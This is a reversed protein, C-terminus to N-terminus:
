KKDSYAISISKQKLSLLSDLEMTPYDIAAPIAAHNRILESFDNATVFNNDTLFKSTAFKSETLLTASVDAKKISKTFTKTSTKGAASVFNIKKGVADLLTLTATGVTIIVNKGSKKASHTGSTIQITDGDNFGKVSDKGDSKGFKYTIDMGYWNELYDNGSGGSLTIHDGENYLTDNGAGGVIYAYVGENCFYDAGAGGLLTAHEGCSYIYDDGADGLVSSKDGYNYIEDDDDGGRLTNGNGFSVFIDEGEGGALSNYGVYDVIEDDGIGGDISVNWGRNTFTDDGGEGYLEAREASNDIFDDGDGVFIKSEYGTVSVNDGFLKIETKGNTVTDSDAGGYITANYGYNNIVNNGADGYILANTAHNTITDAGEGGRITAKNGGSLNIAYYNGDSKVTAGISTLIEDKVDQATLAKLTEYYSISNWIFDNGAGGSISVNDGGNNTLADNGADGAIKVTDGSNNVSDNGTSGTITIKDGENFIYDNGAGANIKVTDGYNKITDNGAAAGISVNDGSNTITDNGKGGKMTVKDWYNTAFNNKVSVTKKYTDYAFTTDAAQKAYYRMFIYGGAYIEYPPDDFITTTLITEFIEPNKAYYVIDEYRRDDLGQILEASGGEALFDPINGFYNINSAMLGHVLEHVLTRDLGWGMDMGEILGHNDSSSMDKFNAMNMCLVRSEYIKDEDGDINEFSVSARATDDPDDIFKLQIRSNTTDVDTFSFGYSEKILELADPLWWSYLGQVIYQQDATLFKKDPIGFITLGDIIFSSGEPYQAEGTSPLIDTATKTKSGGADSGSIAGTDANDLVIGCKEVLFTHWNKAAKIDELFQRRVANFNKFNSSAKIAENLAAGGKLTTDNLSQMFTKIVEQQTM